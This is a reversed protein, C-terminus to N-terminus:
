IRDSLYENVFKMREEEYNSLNVYGADHLVWPTEMYPVVVRYGMKQFEMSQSCDYFDWKQFLDSRWPIDYQTIMVCGDIVEVDYLQKQTQPYLKMNVVESIHHEYLNGIRDVEWMIGASSLKPAGVMGIMGIDAHAQFISLINDIFYKNVIFLDQHLYVKYKATNGTMGENYGSTMSVAEKITLVSIQYGTPVHLRQIYHICEDTYLDDNSCIIFSIEKENM